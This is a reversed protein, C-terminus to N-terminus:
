EDKPSHFQNYGTDSYIKIYKGKSDAEAFIKNKLDSIEGNIRLEFNNDLMVTKVIRASIVKSELDFQTDFPKSSKEPLEEFKKVFTDFEKKFVESEPKHSKIKEVLEDYVLAEENRFHNVIENRLFWYDLPSISKVEKNLLKDIANFANKTNTESDQLQKAVLFYLYWYETIKSKSDSVLLGDIELNDSFTIVAAKQIRTKSAPLGVKIKLDSEDFFEDDDIKVIVFKTENDHLVKLQLLCGKRIEVGMQEIREQANMEVDYLKQAIGVAKAKWDGGNLISILSSPVLEQVSSFDFYRSRPSNLLETLVSQAYDKLDNTNGDLALEVPGQSTIDIKHLSYEQVILNDM